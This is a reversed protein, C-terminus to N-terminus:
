WMIINNSDKDLLKPIFIEPKECSVLLNSGIEKLNKRFNLVSEMVFNTRIVGSKRTNYVYNSPLEEDKFITPDFCYV